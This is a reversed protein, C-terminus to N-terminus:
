QEIIICILKYLKGYEPLIKGFKPINLIYTYNQGGTGDSLISIVSFMM